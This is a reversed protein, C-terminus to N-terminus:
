SNRVDKCTDRKKHNRQIHKRVTEFSLKLERAIKAPRMGSTFMRSIDTKQKTTLKNHTKRSKQLSTATRNTTARLEDVSIEYQRQQAAVMEIFWQENQYLHYEKIHDQCVINTHVIRNDCLACLKLRNTNTEYKM